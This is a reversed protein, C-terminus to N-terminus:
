AHSSNREDPAMTCGQQAKSQPQCPASHCRGLPLYAARTCKVPGMSIMIGQIYWAVLRENSFLLSVCVMRPQKCVPLCDHM